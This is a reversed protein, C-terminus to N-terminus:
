IPGVSHASRDAARGPEALRHEPTGSVVQMLDRGSPNQNLRRKYVKSVERRSIPFHAGRVGGREGGWSGRMGDPPGFFDEGARGQQTYFRNKLADIKRDNKTDIKQLNKLLKAEM